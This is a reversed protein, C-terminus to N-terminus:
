SAATEERTERRVEAVKRALALVYGEQRQLIDRWAVCTGTERVYDVLDILAQSDSSGFAPVRLGRLLQSAWAEPTQCRRLASRSRTQIQDWHSLVVASGYTRLYLARAGLIVEVTMTVLKEEVERSVM